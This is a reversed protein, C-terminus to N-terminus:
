LQEDIGLSVVEEHGQDGDITDKGNIEGFREQILGWSIYDSIDM